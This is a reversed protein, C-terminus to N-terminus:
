YHRLYDFFAGGKTSGSPKNGDKCCGAVTCMGSDTSDLGFM